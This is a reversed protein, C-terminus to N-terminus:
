PQRDGFPAWAGSADIRAVHEDILPRPIMQIFSRFVLGLVAVDDMQGLLPMFDVLFDFPSIAYVIAAMLLLKPWASVRSDRLLRVFLKAFSPLHGVFRMLESPHYRSVANQVRSKV